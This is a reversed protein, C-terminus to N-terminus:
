FSRKFRLTSAVYGAYEHLPFGRAKEIPVLMTTTSEMEIGFLLLQFCMILLHM